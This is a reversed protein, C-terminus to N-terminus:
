HNFKYKAYVCEGPLHTGSEHDEVYSSLISIFRTKFHAGDWIQVFKARTPNGIKFIARLTKKSKAACIGEEGFFGAGGGLIGGVIAGGVIAVPHGFSAGVRAGGAAGIVTSTFRRGFLMTAWRRTWSKYTDLYGKILPSSMVGIGIKDLLAMSFTACNLCKGDPSYGYALWRPFANDIKLSDVDSILGDITYPRPLSWEFVAKKMWEKHSYCVVETAEGGTEAEVSFSRPNYHTRFSSHESSGKFGKKDISSGYHREEEEYGRITTYQLIVQSDQALVYSRDGTPQFAVTGAWVPNKTTLDRTEFMLDMGEYDDKPKHGEVWRLRVITELNTYNVVEDDLDVEIIEDRVHTGRDHEDAEDVELASSSSSSSSALSSSSSGSIEEEKGPNPFHRRRVGSSFSSLGNGEEDSEMAFAPSYPVIQQLFFFLATICHVKKKYNLELIM